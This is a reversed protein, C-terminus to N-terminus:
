RWRHVSFSFGFETAQTQSRVIDVSRGGSTPSALALKGQYLPAAHDACYIGIATIETEYVPAAVKEKM